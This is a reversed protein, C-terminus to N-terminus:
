VSGATRQDGAYSNVALSGAVIRSVKSACVSPSKERSRPRGARKASAGPPTAHSAGSIAGPFVTKNLSSADQSRSARTTIGSRGSAGTTARVVKRSALRVLWSQGAAGHPATTNGAVAGPPTAVSSRSSIAGSRTSRRTFSILRRMAPGGVAAGRSSIRATAVMTNLWPPGDGIRASTKHPAGVTTSSVMGSAM